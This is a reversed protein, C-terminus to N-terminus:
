YKTFAIIVYLNQGYEMNIVVFYEVNHISYKYECHYCICFFDLTKIEHGEM